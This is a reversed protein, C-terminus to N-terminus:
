PRWLSSGQPLFNHYLAASFFYYRTRLLSEQFRELLRRPVKGSSEEPRSCRCSASGGDISPPPAVAARWVPRRARGPSGWKSAGRRFATRRRVASVSARASSSAGNGPLPTSCRCGASFAAPVFPCVAAPTATRLPRIKSETRIQCTRRPTSSFRAAWRIRSDAESGQEVAAWLLSRPDPLSRRSRNRRWIRDEARDSIRRGTRRLTKADSSTTANTPGIGVSRGASFGVWIKRKSSSGKETEPKIPVVKILIM